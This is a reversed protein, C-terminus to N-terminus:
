TMMNLKNERVAPGEDDVKEVTHRRGVADVLNSWTVNSWDVNQGNLMKVM